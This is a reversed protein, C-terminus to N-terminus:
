VLTQAPLIKLLLWSIWALIFYCLSSLLRRTVRYVCAERLICLYGAVGCAVLM